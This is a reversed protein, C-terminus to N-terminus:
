PEGREISEARALLWSRVYDIGGLAIDTWHDEHNCGAADRLARAAAQRERDAVFPALATLIDDGTETACECPGYRDPHGCRWSHPNGDNGDSLGNERLATLAAEREAATWEVGPTRDDAAM